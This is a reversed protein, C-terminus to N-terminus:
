ARWSDCEGERMRTSERRQWTEDGDKRRQREDRKVSGRAREAAASAAKMEEKLNRKRSKSFISERM